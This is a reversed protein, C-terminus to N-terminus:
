VPRTLWIRGAGRLVGAATEADATEEFLGYVVPGAGSVDARFAGLEELRAALPSMALDNPPLAALDRVARAHALAEDLLRRRAAFGTAGGRGDFQAYVAATSEKSVTHPLVLLVVYNRPLDIPELATGDGTALQPGDRLFFPVDAGTAAAIAHLRDDALSEQLAANALRLAAAADSSGGGLGAAVPIRKDIRARWAPPVGAKEALGTLARKVLTDAPFGTVELARSSEVTVVDHLEVRQLLTAVEHNGDDRRPGVILALNIKAHAELASV